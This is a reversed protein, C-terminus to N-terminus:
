EKVIEKIIEKIRDMNDEMYLKGILAEFATAHKYTLIDCSKPKSNTKVNRGRRLFDKEEETFFSSLKEIFYAQGRATVYKLSEEKLEKIKVIGKEILYKRILTEYVSDGIHAYQLISYEKMLQVM